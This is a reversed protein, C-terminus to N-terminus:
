RYSDRKYSREGLGREGAPSAVLEWGELGSHEHRYGEDKWDLEVNNRVTVEGGFWDKDM